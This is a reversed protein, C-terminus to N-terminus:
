VWYKREEMHAWVGHENEYSYLDFPIAETNYGYRKLWVEAITMLKEKGAPSADATLVQCEVMSINGKLYLQAKWGSVMSHLIVYVNGNENKYQNSLRDYYWDRRTSGM